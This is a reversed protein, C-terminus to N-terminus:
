PLTYKREIIDAVSDPVFYRINKKERIRCRIDSSSIDILPVKVFEVKKMLWEPNDNKTTFPRDAVVIKCQELIAQPDKWTEIDSLNDRGVIFALDTDAQLTKKIELITDITYSLGKRTMEIDSVTFCPIKKVALCLMRFREEASFMIDSNKHPPRASPIFIVSSLGLTECVSRAIILHGNHVPDFTGGFLGIKKM